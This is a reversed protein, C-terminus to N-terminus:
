LSDPVAVAGSNLQELLNDAVITDVAVTARRRSPEPATYCIYKRSIKGPYKPFPGMTIGLDADQYVKEMFKGFIPLATRGGEGQQSGQFHISRDEGGVWVGTVLDKTVGM